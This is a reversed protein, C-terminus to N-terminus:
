CGIDKGARWADLAKVIFENMRTNAIDTSKKFRICGKGRDIGELLTGEEDVKKTDGVYFSVYNRQANLHFVKDKGKGFSLMKYDIAEELDPGAKLVMDRLTLLKPKRWDDELANLYEAPTKVDYLM